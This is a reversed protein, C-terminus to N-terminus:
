KVGDLWAWAACQEFDGLWSAAGHDHALAPLLLAACWPASPQDLAPLDPWVQHQLALMQGWMAVTARAAVGISLLPDTGRSVTALMSRRSGFPEVQLCYGPVPMAIPAGAFIADALLDRTHSIAEPAVDGRSSRRIHGTNLTLHNLYTM